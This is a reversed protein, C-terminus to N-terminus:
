RGRGRSVRELLETEGLERCFAELEERRAGEWRLGDHAEALPV